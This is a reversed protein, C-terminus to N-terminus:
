WWRSGNHVPKWGARVRYSRPSGKQRGKSSGTSELVMRPVRSVETGAAKRHRRAGGVSKSAEAQADGGLVRSVETGAARRHRRAGGVSKSAEAQADGRPVRSVETGAAKRHRRAGGVSESAEAWADDGASSESRGSPARQSGTGELVVQQSGTGELVVQQSGTGELVMSVRSAAAQRHRDSEEREAPKRISRQQKMTLKTYRRIVTHAYRITTM